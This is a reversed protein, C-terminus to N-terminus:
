AEPQSIEELCPQSQNKKLIRFLILSRKVYQVIIMTVFTFIYYIRRAVAIISKTVVTSLRKIAKQNTNLRLRM